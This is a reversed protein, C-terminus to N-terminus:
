VRPHRHSREMLSPYAVGGYQLTNRDTNLALSFGPVIRRFRGEECKVSPWTGVDCEARGTGEGARSAKFTQVKDNHGVKMDRLIGASSTTGGGMM